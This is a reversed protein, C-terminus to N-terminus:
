FRGFFFLRWSGCPAGTLTTQALGVECPIAGSGWPSSADDLWVVVGALTRPAPDDVDEAAAVGLVV